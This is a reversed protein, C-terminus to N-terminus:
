AAEPDLLVACEDEHVFCLHLLGHKDPGRLEGRAGCDPCVGSTTAANRIALGNKLTEPADDPISPLLLLARPKASMGPVRPRRTM